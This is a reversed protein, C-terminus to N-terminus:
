GGANAETKATNLGTNAGTNVQASNTTKGNGTAEKAIMQANSGSNEAFNGQQTTNSTNSAQVIGPKTQGNNQAIAANPVIDVSAVAIDGSNGNGNTAQSITINKSNSGTSGSSDAFAPLAVFAAIAAALLSLTFLKKRM